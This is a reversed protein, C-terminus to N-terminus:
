GPFTAALADAILAARYTYGEVTFHLRDGAFWSTHVASAWDYIHMNAYKPAEQVLANDWLQANAASWPGDAVLSRLNVWMVPDGAVLDMMKDIRVARGPGSGAAINATDTTGLAFVWCGHYGARKLALATDYANIQGPLTEVISRAGSIEMIPDAVGVRRYQGDIRLSPDTIYTPSIMGVSTSDGIHVVSACSTTPVSPAPPRTDLVRVSTVPFFHQTGTPSFAGQVDVTLDVAHQNYICFAGDADVPVVSLNSVALDRVFNGNSRTQAGPQLTSCRDATVYGPEAGDVMTINALVAATGAPAGTVVRTVTGPALTASPAVRTDLARPLVLADFALGTPSTTVFSGQVDVVLDVARQVYICFSGDADVPVVGLDSVAAPGSFNGNSRTQGGPQLAACADATVYGSGSAGVMTINALVAAAGVPAHAAVRVIAGAAPTSPGVRTDLVREGTGPQYLLGGAAAPAIYGQVDALLDVAASNAICFRGDADVPVVSLNAVTSKPAFNGNSRSQAGPQLSSCRDATIYGNGTGSVMTLNALVATASRGVATQVPTVAGAGVASAPVVVNPLPVASVAAVVLAAAAM